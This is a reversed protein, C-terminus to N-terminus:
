AGSRPRPDRRWRGAPPRDARPGLRRRPPARCRPVAGAAAHPRDRPVRERDTRELGHDRRRRLGRVARPEGAPEAARHHLSRPNLERATVVISLNNVDDDTGAVIGVATRIGAAACRSPRPASHRARVPVTSTPRRIPTSSRSRSARRSSAGAGGRPRLARLRVGGLPRAAAACDTTELSTGPLQRDALSVSGTSRAARASRSRSSSASARSRISSTTPASRPWTPRADGAAHRARAGAPEPELLRVAMAVALNAQDDNTLALVGRCSDRACGPACRPQGAPARGRRARAAGPQFDM